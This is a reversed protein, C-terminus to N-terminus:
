RMRTPRNHHCMFLIIIYYTRMCGRMILRTGTRRRYSSSIRYGRVLPLQRRLPPVTPATPISAASPPRQNIAANGCPPVSSPPFRCPSCPASRRSRRILLFGTSILAFRHSVRRFGFAHRAYHVATPFHFFYFFHGAVRSRWVLTKWGKQRRLRRFLYFIFDIMEGAERRRIIFVGEM